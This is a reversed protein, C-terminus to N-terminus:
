SVDLGCLRCVLVSADGDPDQGYWDTDTNPRCQEPVAPWQHGPLILVARGPYVYEGAHHAPAHGWSAGEPVAPREYPHTYPDDCPGPVPTSMLM